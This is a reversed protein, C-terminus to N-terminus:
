SFITRLGRRFHVNEFRRDLVPGIQRSVDRLVDFCAFIFPFRSAVTVVRPTAVPRWNRTFSSSCVVKRLCGMAHM